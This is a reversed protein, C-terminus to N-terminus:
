NVSVKGVHRRIVQSIHSEDLWCLFKFPCFLCFMMGYTAATNPRCNVGSCLLFGCCWLDVVDPCSYVPCRCRFSFPGETSSCINGNQVSFVSPRPSSHLFGDVDFQLLWWYVSATTQSEMGRWGMHGEATVGHCPSDLVKLITKLTIVQASLVVM